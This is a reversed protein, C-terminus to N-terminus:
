RLCYARLEKWDGEAHRVDALPVGRLYALAYQVLGFGPGGVNATFACNHTTDGSRAFAHDSPADVILMGDEPVNEVIDSVRARLEALYVASLKGQEYERGPMDTGATRVVTGDPWAAALLGGTRCDDPAPYGPLRWVVFLPTAAPGDAARTQTTPLHLADEDDDASEVKLLWGGDTDRRWTRGADDILVDFVGDGDQDQIHECLGAGGPTAPTAAYTTSKRGVTQHFYPSLAVTYAGDTPTLPLHVHFPGGATHVMIYVDENNMAGRFVDYPGLNREFELPYESLEEAAATSGAVRQMGIVSLRGLWMGLVLLLLGIVILYATRLKRM